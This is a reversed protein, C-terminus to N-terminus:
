TPSASGLPLGARGLLLRLLSHTARSQWPVRMRPAPGATNVASPLTRSKPRWPNALMAALVMGPVFLHMDVLWMCAWGTLAYAVLYRGGQNLARALRQRRPLRPAHGIRLSVGPTPRPPPPPSPSPNPLPMDDPRPGRGVRLSPVPPIPWPGPRDPNAPDAPRPDPETLGSFGPRRPPRQGPDMPSPTGPRPQTPPLRDPNPTIPRPSTM